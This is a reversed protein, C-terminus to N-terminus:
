NSGASALPDQPHSGGGERRQNTEKEHKWSDHVTLRNDVISVLDWLLEAPTVGQKQSLQNILAILQQEMDTPLIPFPAPCKYDGGGGGCGSNLGSPPSESEAEGQAPLGSQGRLVQGKAEVGGAPVEPRQRLTGRLAGADSRKSPRPRCIAHTDTLALLAFFAFLSFTHYTPTSVKRERRRNVSYFPGFGNLGM